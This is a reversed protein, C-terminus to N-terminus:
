NNNIKNRLTENDSEQTLIIAFENFITGCVPCNKLVDDDLKFNKGLNGCVPCKKSKSSNIM